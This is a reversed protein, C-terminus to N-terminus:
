EKSASGNSRALLRDIAAMADDFEALSEASLVPSLDVGPDTERGVAYAGNRVCEQDAAVALNDGDVWPIIEFISNQFHQLDGPEIYHLLGCRIM